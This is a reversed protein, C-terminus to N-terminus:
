YNEIQLGVSEIIFWMDCENMNAINELANKLPELLDLNPTSAIFMIDDDLSDFYLYLGKTWGTDENDEPTVSIVLGMKNCGYNYQTIKDKDFEYFYCYDISGDSQPIILWKNILHEWKEREEYKMIYTSMDEPTILNQM